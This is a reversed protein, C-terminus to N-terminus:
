WSRRIDLAQREALGPVLLLIAGPGAERHEQGMQDLLTGLRGGAARRSELELEGAGVSGALSL